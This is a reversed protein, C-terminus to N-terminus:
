GGEPPMPRDLVYHEKGAWIGVQESEPYEVIGFENMTSVIAVRVAADTANRAQHAGEPGAPFCVVEGRDLVLEEEKTRITVQGELAILWEEDTWEFHYPGIAEGPPIDYVSMGLRSAGLKRGVRAARGPHGPAGPAPEEDTEGSFLNFTEFSL